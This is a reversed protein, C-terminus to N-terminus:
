VTARGRWQLAEPQGGEKVIRVRVPNRYLILEEEEESLFLIDWSSFPQRSNHTGQCGKNIGKVKNVGM